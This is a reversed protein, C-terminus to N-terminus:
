LQEALRACEAKVWALTRYEEGPWKLDPDVHAMYPIQDSAHGCDWGFWWVHDPDGEGPVHCIAESEDGEDSCTSTFTVGGHVELDDGDTGFLPHGEAVGVYGCWQGMRVNRRALCPLGTAPDAWQVKEPEDLWPGEGWKDLKTNRSVTSYEILPTTM